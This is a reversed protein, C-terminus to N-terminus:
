QENGLSRYDFVTCVKFGSTFHTTRMTPEGTIFRVESRKDGLPLPSHASPVTLGLSRFLEAAHQPTTGAFGATEVGAYGIDAVRRITGDFDTALAERLSYLQVAIPKTM